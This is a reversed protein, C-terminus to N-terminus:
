VPIFLKFQGDIGFFRFAITCGGNWFMLVTAGHASFHTGHASHFLNNVIFGYVQNLSKRLFYWSGDLNGVARKEGKKRIGSISKLWDCRGEPHKTLWMFCTQGKKRQSKVKRKVKYVIETCYEVNKQYNNM